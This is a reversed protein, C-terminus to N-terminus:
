TPRETEWDGSARFIRANAEFVHDFTGKIIGVVARPGFPVVRGKYTVTGGEPHRRVIKITTKPGTEECTIECPEPDGDFRGTFAGVPGSIRLVPDIIVNEDGDVLVGERWTGGIDSCAM